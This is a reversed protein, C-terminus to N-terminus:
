VELFDGAKSMAKFKAQVQDATVGYKRLEYNVMIFDYTYFIEYNWIERSIIGEISNDAVDADIARMWAAEKHPEQEREEPTLKAVEEELYHSFYKM